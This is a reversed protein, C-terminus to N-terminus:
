KPTIEVDSPLEKYQNPHDALYARFSAETVLGDTIHPSTTTTDLYQQIGAQACKMSFGIDEGPWVDGWIHEEDYIHYFWPPEIKEFVERAILISGTGLIDVPMLGPTWTAPACLKGDKDYLFACPEHPKSRRYNLGGVVLRSPDHLVWRALRQIIDRPHIHDLDLMLLHTNQSKLLEIALRNRALDTRTYEQKIYIPGQAIIEAFGWFAMNAHPITREIPIGLMVRPWPWSVIPLTRLLNEIQQTKQELSIEM